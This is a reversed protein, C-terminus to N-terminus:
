RNYATRRKKSIMVATLAGAGAIMMAAGAAFSFDNGTKPSKANSNKKVSSNTNDSKNTEAPPTLIDKEDTESVLKIEALNFKLRADLDQNGMMEVHPNVKASVYESLKDLPFSFCVPNGDSSKQQVVANVWSGNAQQIKMEQLSATISGFTMPKTYVYVTMNGDKVVIRATGNFSEAAMSAKDQSAHWLAVPIEYVGDKLNNIDIKEDAPKTPETPVTPNVPKSPKEPEAPKEVPKKELKAVAAEIDAAFGDVTEQESIDLGNVVAKKANEVAKWSEETYVSSDSPIKALAADVASYDAGKYELSNKVQNLEDIMANLNEVSEPASVVKEAKAIAATLKSYSESTYNESPIGKCEAVLAELASTDPKAANMDLTLTVTTPYPNGGGIFEDMFDVTISLKQSNNSDLNLPIEFKEPVTISEQPGGMGKTYVEEKTSLITASQVGDLTMDADAISVVNADYKSGMLDIVMHYNNITATKSGDSNVNVTVSDGFAGAFATQVAPLPAASTLSKIPVIYKESTNTAAEAAFAATALMSVCMVLAMFLSISRSFLNSKTKKM